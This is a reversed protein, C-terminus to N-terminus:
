CIPWLPCLKKKARKLTEEGIVAPDYGPILGAQRIMEDVLRELARRAEQFDHQSQPGASIASAARAVYSRIEADSGEGFKVGKMKAYTEVASWLKAAVEQEDMPAGIGGQESM